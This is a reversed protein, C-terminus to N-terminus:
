LTELRHYPGKSKYLYVMVLGLVLVAGVIVIAICIAIWAGTTLGDPSQSSALKNSGSSCGEPASFYAAAPDSGDVQPADVKTGPEIAERKTGYPSAVLTCGYQGELVPWYHVSDGSYHCWFKGQYEKPADVCV